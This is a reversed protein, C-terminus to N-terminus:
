SRKRRALWGLMCGPAEKEQPGGMVKIQQRRALLACCLGEVEPFRAYVEPFEERMSVLEEADHLLKGLDGEGEELFAQMREKLDKLHLDYEDPTLQTDTM